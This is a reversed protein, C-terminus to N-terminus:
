DDTPEKGTLMADYAAFLRDFPSGPRPPPDRMEGLTRIQGVIEVIALLRDKQEVLKKNQNFLADREAEAARLRRRYQKVRENEKSSRWTQSARDREHTIADQVRKMLKRCSLAVATREREGRMAADFDGAPTTEDALELFSKGLITFSEFCRRTIQDATDSAMIM